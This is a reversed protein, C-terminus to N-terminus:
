TRFLLKSPAERWDMGLEDEARRQLRNFEAVTIGFVQLNYGDNACVGGLPTKRLDALAKRWGIWLRKEVANM